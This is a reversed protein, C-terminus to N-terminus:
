VTVVRLDAALHRVDRPDSTVVVHSRQRACLVVTADIVDDTGSVGCLQGAVRAALGDLAVIECLPSSVLRALRAQTRGNRWAQALAGAPVTLTTGRERARAVLVDMRRVGRDFAILAGADLTAGAGRGAGRGGM